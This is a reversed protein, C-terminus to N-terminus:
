VAQVCNHAAWTTYFAIVRTRQLTAGSRIILCMAPNVLFLSPFMSFNSLTTLYSIEWICSRLLAHLFAWHSITPFLTRVEGDMTPERPAGIWRRDQLGDRSHVFQHSDIAVGAHRDRPM